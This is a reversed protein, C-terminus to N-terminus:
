CRFRQWLALRRPLASQLYARKDFGSSFVSNAGPDDFKATIPLLDTLELLFPAAVADGKLTAGSDDGVGGDPVEIAGDLELEALSAALDHAAEAIRLPSGALTAILSLAFM